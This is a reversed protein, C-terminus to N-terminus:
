QLANISQTPQSFHLSQPFSWTRPRPVANFIRNETSPWFWAACDTLQKVKYFSSLVDAQLQLDYLKGKHRFVSISNVDRKKDKQRIQEQNLLQLQLTIFYNSKYIQEISEWFRDFNHMFHARWDLLDHFLLYRIRRCKFKAFPSSHPLWHKCKPLCIQTGQM